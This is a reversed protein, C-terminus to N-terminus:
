SYSYIKLMGKLYHIKEKQTSRIIDELNNCYENSKLLVNAALKNGKAHKLKDNVKDNLEKNYGFNIPSSYSNVSNIRM